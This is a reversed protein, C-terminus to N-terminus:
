RTVTVGNSGTLTGHGFGNAGGPDSLTWTQQNAVTYYVNNFLMQITQTATLNKSMPLNQCYGLPADTFKGNSDTASGLVHQNLTSGDFFTGNEYPVM